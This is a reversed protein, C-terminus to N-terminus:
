GEWSDIDIVAATTWDDSLLFPGGFIYPYGSQSLQTWGTGDYNVDSYAPPDPIVFVLTYTHDDTAGSKVTTDIASNYSLDDSHESTTPAALRFSGWSLPVYHGDADQVRSGDDTHLLTLGLSSQSSWDATWVNWPGDQSLRASEGDVSQIFLLPFTPVCKLGEQVRADPRDDSADGDTFSFTVSKPSHNVIHTVKVMLLTEFYTTESDYDDTSQIRRVTPETALSATVSTFDIKGVDAPTWDTVAQKAVESAKAQARAMRQDFQQEPTAPLLPAWPLPAGLVMVVLVVLALGLAAFAIIKGIILHRKNVSLRAVLIVLMLAFLAAVVARFVPSGIITSSVGTLDGQLFAPVVAVVGLVSTVLGIIQTGWGQGKSAGARPAVPPQPAGGTAPRDDMAASM